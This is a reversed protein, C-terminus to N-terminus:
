QIVLLEVEFILTADPPIVGGIGQSGYAISAPITLRRKGGVQMGAVGEDWGKIVQSAGLLFSFPQGHDYSSDFKTGNELWGTYHVSVTNGSKAAPGTGVVQDEIKLGSPKTESRVPTPSATPTPTPSPSTEPGSGKRIFLRIGVAVVAILIIYILINKVM